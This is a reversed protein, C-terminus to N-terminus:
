RSETSPQNADHFLDVAEEIVEFPMSEITRKIVHVRAPNQERSARDMASLLSVVVAVQESM